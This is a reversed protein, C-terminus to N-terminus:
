SSLHKMRGAHVPLQICCLKGVLEQNGLSHTRRVERGKRYFIPPLLVEVSIGRLYGVVMTMSQNSVNRGAFIYPFILKGVANRKM